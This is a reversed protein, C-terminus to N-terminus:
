HYSIPKWSHQMYSFPQFWITHVIFVTPTHLQNNELLMMNWDFWVLGNNLLKGFACAKKKNRVYRDHLMWFFRAMKKFDIKCFVKSALVYHITSVFFTGLESYCHNARQNSTHTSALEETLREYPNNPNLFTLGVDPKLKVNLVNRM